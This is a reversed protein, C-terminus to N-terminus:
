DDVTIKRRCGPATLVHRTPASDLGPTRQLGHFGCSDLEARACTGGAFPITHTFVFDLTDSIVIELDTFSQAVLSDLAQRVFREGNYVPM